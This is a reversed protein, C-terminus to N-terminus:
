GVVSLWEHGVFIWLEILVTCAIMQQTTCVQMKM